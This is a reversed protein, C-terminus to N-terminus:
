SPHTPPSRRHVVLLSISKSDQTDHQSYPFKWEPGLRYAISVVTAGFLNALVRGFKSFQENTGGVFGGGFLLVILPGAKSGDPPRQIKLSSMFGDRMPIEKHSEFGTFAPGTWVNWTTEMVDMAKRTHAVTPPGSLQPRPNKEAYQKMILTRSQELAKMQQRVELIDPHLVAADELEKITLLM